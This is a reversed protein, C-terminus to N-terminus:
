KKGILGVLRWNILSPSPHCVFRRSEAAHGDHDTVVEVLVVAYDAECDCVRDDARSEDDEQEHDDEEGALQLQEEDFLSGRQEGEDLQDSEQHGDEHRIDDLQHAGEPRGPFLGPGVVELSPQELREIGGRAGGAVDYEEEPVLRELLTIMMYAFQFIEFRLL